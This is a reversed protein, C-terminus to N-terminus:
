LVATTFTIEDWVENAKPDVNAIAAGWADPLMTNNTDLWGTAFAKQQKTLSNTKQLLEREKTKDREAHM